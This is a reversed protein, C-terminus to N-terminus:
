FEAKWFRVAAPHDDHCELWGEDTENNSRRTVEKGTAFRMFISEPWIEAKLLDAEKGCGTFMRHRAERRQDTSEREMYIAAEDWGFFPTYAHGHLKDEVSSSM